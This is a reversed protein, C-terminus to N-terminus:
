GSTCWVADKGEPHARARAKAREGDLLNTQGASLVGASDDLDCVGARIQRTNRARRVGDVGGGRSVEVKVAPFIRGAASEWEVAVSDKECINRCSGGPSKKHSVRGRVAPVGGGNVAGIGHGGRWTPNHGPHAEFFAGIGPRWGHSILVRGAHEEIARREIGTGASVYHDHTFAKLRAFGNGEGATGSPANRGAGFTSGSGKKGVGRTRSDGLTDECAPCASPHCPTCDKQVRVHCVKAAKDSTGGKYSAGKSVRDGDQRALQRCVVCPIDIKVAHKL